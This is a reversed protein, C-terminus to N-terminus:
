DLKLIQINKAEFITLALQVSGIQVLMPDNFIPAFRKVLIKEGSVFGHAFLRSELDKNNGDICKISYWNNVKAQSLEM